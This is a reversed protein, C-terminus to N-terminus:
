TAMLESGCFGAPDAIKTDANSNPYQAALENAIRNLDARAQQLTVGPKLRGLLRWNQWERHTQWQDPYGFRSQMMLPAWFEQRIAFKVGKFGAPAVGIVTFPIGNLYVQKGVISSDSGFRQQWLAHGLVVVTHANPTRDEEPLFTRGLAAKVGLVDFYNGSVLEGWVVDARSMEGASRDARNSIGASTMQWALLGSFVRNRDRYDAYNPYSFSNWVELDKKAGWFPEVLEEPNEVPLPRIIFGNVTSFIATNVGIGLALTLVAVITFGPKKILIRAGYRLDQWLTQM